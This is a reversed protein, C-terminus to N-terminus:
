RCPRAFASFLSVTFNARWDENSSDVIAAGVMSYANNVLIDLHGFKEAADQIARTFAQEDSADLAVAEARGGAASIERAVAQLPELRRGCLVVTAGEQAFRKATAAGIGTGAGTILAVKNALRQAM